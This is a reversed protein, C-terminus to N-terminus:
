AYGKVVLRGKYEYISGDLNFKVRYVWKVGIINKDYPKEDLDWTGNKNIMGIEAKMADIWNAFKTTQVYSNFEVSVLNCKEYVEAM